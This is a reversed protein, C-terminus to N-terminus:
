HIMNIAEQTAQDFTTITKSNAEFARQAVILASFETSVDVNSSELADGEITGRGATGATGIVAAGSALTAQYSTNNTAQLGQQNAVTAVAVQGIIEKQGNSFNADVIGNGDVSFGQYTGSAYGDATTGAINSASTSQTISSGAAGSLNWSFNMDQAGDSMGTFTIGSITGTPNVLNGAGDFTLTGTTGSSAAADGSPLTVSYNWTNAATKTFTVTAQHATGLSDYLTVPAPVATGVGASADLNAQINMSSTPTAPLSQGLPLIIPQVGSGLSISGNAAPYGMVSAGSTTQLAGSNSLVFDGARTLEQQGNDNIVFFGNGQLAMDTSQATATPSGDSFDTETTAIQTGVGVQVGGNPGGNLQQYFLTSFQDTQDKYGVTNMNALNNAITNLATNNSELGTLATAFSPM